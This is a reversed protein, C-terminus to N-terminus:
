RPRANGDPGAAANSRTLTNLLPVHVMAVCSLVNAPICPQARDAPSAGAVRPSTEDSAGDIHDDSRKSPGIQDAIYAVLQDRTMAAGRAQAQATESHAGLIAVAEARSSGFRTQRHARLYGIGVAGRELAGTLVWHVTLTEVVSWIGLWDNAAALEHFAERV